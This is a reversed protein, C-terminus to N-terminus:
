IKVKKSYLEIWREYGMDCPSYKEPIDQTPIYFVNKYHILDHVDDMISNISVGNDYAIVLDRFDLKILCEQAKKISHCGAAVANHIGWTEMKMVSKEGEFVICESSKVIEDKAFCFNYLFNKSGMRGIYKYKPLKYLNRYKINVINGDNDYIPFLIRDKEKSYRVDYKELVEESIGEEIWETIKHNNPFEEMCDSKFILSDVMKKEKPMFRKAESLIRPREEPSKGSEFELIQVADRFNVGHIIKIFEIIDGSAGCGMCHFLQKNRNVFFSPTKEKHIPCLGLYEGSPMKRLETYRGVYETIDIAKKMESYDM